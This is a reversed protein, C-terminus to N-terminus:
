RSGNLGLFAGPSFDPDSLPRRLAQANDNLNTIATPMSAARCRLCVVPGAMPIDTVVSAGCACKTARIM